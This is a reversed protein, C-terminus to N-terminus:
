ENLTSYQNLQRDKLQLFLLEPGHLFERSTDHRDSGCNPLLDYEECLRFLAARQMQDYRSYVTELAQGGLKKFDQLLAQNGTADLHYYYLHNLTCISSKTIAEMTEEFPAYHLIETPSIHTAGGYAFHDYAEQRSAVCGKSVLFQAVARKGLHSSYPHAQKMEKYAADIDCLAPHPHQKQYRLLMEKVYAEYNLSQNHKLIQQIAPDNENLWHGGLHIIVKSGTDPHTWLCSFECGSILDIQYTEALKRCQEAPLMHDHDSISLHRLGAEAAQHCLTDPSQDPDGDSLYTHTHLDCGNRNTM